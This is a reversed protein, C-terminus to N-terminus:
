CSSNTGGQGGHGGCGNDRGCEGNGSNGNLQGDGGCRGNGDHKSCGDSRDDGDDGDCGGNGDEGGSENRKCIRRYFLLGAASILLTAAFVIGAFLYQKTGLADGGLTSTVVSPIRGVSCIFLLAPLPIDTLGAFYCLLDKPTGPVIYIAAFLLMRRPSVRLFRLSELKERAFFLEALRMGYKRVLLIVLASGVASALLCLATGEVAGFAYGAAIELPEGPIFAAVIQLVVMGVYAARGAAGHRDVWLRFREPESVFRMLPEWALLGALILLALAAGAAVAAM